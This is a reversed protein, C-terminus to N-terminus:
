MREFAARLNWGAVFSSVSATSNPHSRKYSFFADRVDKLNDKEM